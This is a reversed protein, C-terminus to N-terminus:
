LAFRWSFSVLVPAAIGHRYNRRYPLTLPTRGRTTSDGAACGIVCDHEVVFIGVAAGPIGVDGDDSHAILPLAVM